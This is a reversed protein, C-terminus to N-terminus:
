LQLVLDFNHNRVEEDLNCTHSQMAQVLEKVQRETFEFKM